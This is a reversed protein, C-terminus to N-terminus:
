EADIISVAVSQAPPALRPPPEIEAGSAAQWAEMNKRLQNLREDIRRRVDEAAQAEAEYDHIHTVEAREKYVGLAKMLKELADLKPHLKIKITRGHEGITESIEAICAQQEETLQATDTIILQGGEVRAFDSFKAFAIKGIEDIVSVATVGSREAMLASIAAAVTARKRMRSAIETASKISKGLGARVAAKRGNLDIIYEEVFRRERLSLEAAWKPTDETKTPLKTM